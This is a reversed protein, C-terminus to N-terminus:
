KEEGNFLKLCLDCLKTYNEETALDIWVNMLEQVSWLMLDGRKFLLNYSMGNRRRFSAIKYIDDDKHEVIDTWYPLNLEETRTRHYKIYWEAQKNQQKFNDKAYCVKCMQSRPEIEKEPLIMGCKSCRAYSSM